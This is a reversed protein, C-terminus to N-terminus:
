ANVALNLLIQELHGRDALIPPLDPSVVTGLAVDEGILRRLMPQMDLVVENLLLRRPTVVQGRSFLLLQRTLSCGREGARLIELLQPHRRDALLNNFDHAIGGALRGVAEMKHVQVLQEELRRRDTIDACTGVWERLRGSEDRVPVGRTLFYRYIGDALRLRHELEFPTVTRQAEGFADRFRARDDPHVANMWGEGRIANPQQGTLRRWDPMDEVVLGAPDAIWVVQASAEALCRYREQMQRLTPM